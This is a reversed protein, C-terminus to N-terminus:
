KKVEKNIKDKNKTFEKKMFGVLDEFYSNIQSTIMQKQIKKSKEQSLNGLKPLKEFERVIPFKEIMKLRRNYDASLWCRWFKELPDDKQRTIRKM